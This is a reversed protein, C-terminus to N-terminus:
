SQVCGESELYECSLPRNPKENNLNIVSDCIKINLLPLQM